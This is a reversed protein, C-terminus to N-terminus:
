AEWRSPGNFLSSIAKKGECCKLKKNSCIWLPQATVWFQLKFHYLSCQNPQLNIISQGYMKKASSLHFTPYYIKCIDWGDSHASSEDRTTSDSIHKTLITSLSFQIRQMMECFVFRKKKWQLTFIVGYWQMYVININKQRFWNRRLKWIQYFHRVLQLSITYELDHLPQIPTQFTVRNFKHHFYFTLASLANQLLCKQPQMTQFEWRIESLIFSFFFFFGVMVPCFFDYREDFTSSFIFSKNTRFGKSTSVVTFIVSTYTNVLTNPSYQPFHSNFGKYWKVPYLCKKKIALHFDSCMM